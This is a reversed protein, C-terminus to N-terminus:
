GARLAQNMTLLNVPGPAYILVFSAALFSLYLRFSM